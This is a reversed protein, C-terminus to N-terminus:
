EADNLSWSGNTVSILTTPILLQDMTMTTTM